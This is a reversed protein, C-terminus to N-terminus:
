STPCAAPPTDPTWNTATQELRMTATQTITQNTFGLFPIFHVTATVCVRVAQGVAGSSGSPYYAYVKAATPVDTSATQLGPSATSLVYAQLTTSGPADYNVAAWRAGEAALHTEDNSYNLFQGFYFIGLILTLLVPLVIAMEIM